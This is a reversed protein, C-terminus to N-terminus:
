KSYEELDTSIVVQVDAHKEAQTDHRLKEIRALQEQLDIESKLGKIDKLDKLAGTIDRIGKGHLSLSGDALGEAISELLKDAITNFIDEKKTNRRAATEVDRAVAMAGSKTRAATWKEKQAVKRLTGYPVGHKEALARVSIGGRLYEARLKRWDAM